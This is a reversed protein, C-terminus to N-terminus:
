FNSTTLSLSVLIRSFFLFTTISCHHEFLLLKIEIIIQLYIKYIFIKAGYGYITSSMARNPVVFSVPDNTPIHSVNLM